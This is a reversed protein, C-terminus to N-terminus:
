RSKIFEIVHGPHWTGLANQFWRDILKGEPTFEFTNKYDFTKNNITASGKLTIKGDEIIVDAKMAAGKNSVSLFIIKKENIDWYFHGEQYTNRDPNSRSYKIVEGGWIPEYSLSVKFTQSGDPSKMDGVWKESLLPELIKLNESLTQASASYQFAVITGLLLYKIQNKMSIKM